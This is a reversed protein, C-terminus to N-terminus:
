CVAVIHTWNSLGNSISKEDMMMPPLSPSACDRFSVAHVDTSAGARCNVKFSVFGASLMKSLASILIGRVIGTAWYVAQPGITPGPKSHLRHPFKTRSTVSGVGERALNRSPLSLHHSTLTMVEKTKM